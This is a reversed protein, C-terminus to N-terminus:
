AKTNGLEKELQSEVAKSVTYKEKVQSITYGNRLADFVKRYESSGPTLKSWMMRM